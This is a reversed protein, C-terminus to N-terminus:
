HLLLLLRRQHHRLLVQHLLDRLLQFLVRALRRLRLLRGLVLVLLHHRVSRRHLAVELGGGGRVAGDGAEAPREGRGQTAAGARRRRRDRRLLGHLGHLAAARRLAAHHRLDGTGGRRRVRAAILAALARYCGVRRGHWLLLSNLHPPAARLRLAGDALWQCPSPTPDSESRTAVTSPPPTFGVRLPAKRHELKQTSGFSVTTM